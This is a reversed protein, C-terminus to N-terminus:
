VKELWCFLGAIPAGREERVPRRELQAVRFACESALREIYAASHAYRLSARLELDAQVSEELSFCFSGGGPMLRQLEAFVGDLAGVYIFVDAAVVCDHATTATRLYDLVDAQVLTDAVLPMIATVAVDKLMNVDNILRVVLDGSRAKAHYSLSLRQLRRYVDDRIHSLARLSAKAFGITQFYSTLARICFLGRGGDPGPVM